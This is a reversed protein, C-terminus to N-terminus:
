SVLDVEILTVANSESLVFDVENEFNEIEETMNKIVNHIECPNILEIENLEKYSKTLNEILDASATEKTAAAIYRELGIQFNNEYNLVEASARNFQSRLTAVVAEKTDIYNKYEIADAVTMERGAITVKTKQNSEAIACKLKQRNAMLAMLKQFNSKMNQEFEERNVGDIKTYRVKEARVYKENM